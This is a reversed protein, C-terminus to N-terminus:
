IGIVELSRARVTATIKDVSVHFRNEQFQALFSKNVTISIEDLGIVKGDVNKYVRCVTDLQRTQVRSM